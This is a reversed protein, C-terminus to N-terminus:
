SPASWKITEDFLRYGPVTNSTNELSCNLLIGPETRAQHLDECSSVWKEYNDQQYVIFTVSVNKAGFTNGSDSLPAVQAALEEETFGEQAPLAVNVSIGVNLGAWQLFEKDSISSPLDSLDASWSGLTFEAMFEPLVSALGEDLAVRFLPRMKILLYGDTMEDQNALTPSSWKVTFSSDYSTGWVPYASLTWTTARGTFIDWDPAEIPGSSAFEQGYKQNLHQLILATVQDRDEIVAPGPSTNQQVTPMSCGCLFGILVIVVASLRVRMM